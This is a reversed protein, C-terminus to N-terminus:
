EVVKTYTAASAGEPRPDQHCIVEINSIYELTEIPEPSILLITKIEKVASPTSITRLDGLIVGEKSLVQSNVEWWVCGTEAAVQVAGCVFESCAKVQSALNTKASIVSVLEKSTPVKAYIGSEFEFDVPPWKPKPSPTLRIKKRPKPKPKPKPKASVTPKATTTSTTVTAKPTATAKATAKPKTTAKATAKPKVTAKPSAKVSAKATPTPTPKKTAADASAASFALCLALVLASKKLRAGVQFQSNGLNIGTRAM